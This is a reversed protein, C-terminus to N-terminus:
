YPQGATDHNQQLLSEQFAPSVPRASATQWTNTCNPSWSTTTSINRGCLEYVRRLDDKNCLILTRHPLVHVLTSPRYRYLGLYYNEARELTNFALVLVKPRVKEFDQVTRGPGTSVAVNDFEERVLRSVLEADGVISTAM